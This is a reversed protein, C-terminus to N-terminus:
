KLGYLRRLTDDDYKKIWKRSSFTAEGACEIAKRKMEIDSHAYVTTTQMQAHGLFESILPLPVGNRYLHMARTHRFMHPHVHEPVAKCKERAMAGYKSMFYAVTDHSMPKEAGYIHAYFLYDDPKLEPHFEKCYKKLHAVTKDSIPVTRIKDGKGHLYVFPNSFSFEIDKLKLNLLESCRAGTDYMMIMFFLNRMEIRNKINPQEFIIKLADESIFEVPKSKTKRIPVKKVDLAITYKILDNACSYNIFSRLAMLRQNQTSLSSNREDGLYTLFGNVNEKNFYSFSFQAFRINCHKCVYDIYMNLTTKYSKITNQSFVCQKPLYITLYDRM